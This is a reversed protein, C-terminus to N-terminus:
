IPSKNMFIYFHTIKKLAKNMLIITFLQNGVQFLPAFFLFIPRSPYRLTFNMKNNRHESFFFNHIFSSQM